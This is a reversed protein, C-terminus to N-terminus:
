QNSIKYLTVCARAGIKLEETNYRFQPEVKEAGMPFVIYHDVPKELKCVLNGGKDLIGNEAIEIDYLAIQLFQSLYAERSSKFDIIGVKGKKSVYGCDSIGGVWLEESYCNGESWIFHDVELIAWDVFPQIKKDYEGLVGNMHDKVFRECEAHMDTGKKAKTNKDTYHAFRAKKFAPYKKQLADIASKKDSSACAALYEERITPILEGKELCEVAALEAAWWALNKALIGIVTSSGLLPRGNLAHLHEGKEDQYLYPM